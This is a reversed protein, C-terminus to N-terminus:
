HAQRSGGTQPGIRPSVQVNPLEPSGVVVVYVVGSGIMSSVKSSVRPGNKLSPVKPPTWCAEPV